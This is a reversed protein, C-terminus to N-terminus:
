SGCAAEGAGGNWSPTAAGHCYTVSCRSGDWAPTADHARALGGFTVRARTKAQGNDDLLHGPADWSAPKIHCVDCSFRAAHRLHAGSAPPQGHCVSCGTPGSPHCRLCSRGSAGGSFDSGHCRACTTLDFGLSRVLAGHFDSSAPDAIGAPHITECASAPVCRPGDVPRPVGCGVLVLPLMLAARLV